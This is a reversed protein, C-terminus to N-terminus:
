ESLIFPAEADKPTPARKQRGDIMANQRIKKIVFSGGPIQEAKHQIRKANQVIRKGNKNEM